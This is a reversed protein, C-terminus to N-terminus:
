VRVKTRERCFNELILAAIQRGKGVGPGDGLFFGASHLALKPVYDLVVFCCLILAYYVVEHQEPVPETCVHSGM